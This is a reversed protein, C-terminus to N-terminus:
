LLKQVSLRCIPCSCMTKGRSMDGNCDVAHPIEEFYTPLLMAFGLWCVEIFFVFYLFVSHTQRQCSAHTISECWVSDHLVVGM